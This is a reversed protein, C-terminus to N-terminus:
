HPRTEEGWVLLVLGSILMAIAVFWFAAEIQGALNAALAFGLAGIAYGLDRWFRYIGIASGRWAPAAIDAVAASLNPYLLAMGLGSVAASFSWWAIGEGLVMMAVGAGCIWMGSVNPWHRGIKDSLPGTLLQSGGWVMGYMGVVWGIEPLSLGRAFLFVPYIVWVLADVFKEVLGAQSIAALRRDRWSMLAFVEWTSLPATAAASKAEAHAWPLTDRVFFASLVLGLGIVILGFSLLGERPGMLTAAYGTIIGALGVGVYGSFENLGIVVGRQNPRTLDLKSTQAMSWCLGQNVGLLVTAAVIWNWNPALAIMVPIPLAILWGLVLVKKRGIRESLRGAVFNLVGKVVGFAIVFASLLVFSGRELGFESEALAPVVTRTMGIAFGVLLVQVLQHVFQSRNEAIGFQHPIATM